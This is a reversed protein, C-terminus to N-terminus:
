SSCFEGPSNLKTKLNLIKIETERTYALNRKGQLFFYSLRSLRLKGIGKLIWDFFSSSSAASTTTQSKLNFFFREIAHLNKALNCTLGLTSSHSNLLTASLM